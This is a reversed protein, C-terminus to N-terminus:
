RKSLSLTSTHSILGLVLTGRKPMTETNDLIPKSGIIISCNDSAILGLTDPTSLDFNILTDITSAETFIEPVLKDM